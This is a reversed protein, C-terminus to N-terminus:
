ATLVTNGADHVVAVRCATINNWAIFLFKYINDLPEYFVQRVDAEPVESVVRVNIRKGVNIVRSLKHSGFKLPGSCPRNNVRDWTKSLDYFARSGIGEGCHSVLVLSGGDKVGRQCNEMGKQIQYLNKDLPPLLECLVIDYPEDVVNSFLQRAVATCEIFADHLSGCSIHAIAGTADLVTQLGIMANMDLLGSLNMLHEAVPNGELRLPQAELSNALNHNREVTALDTLGPFVSKRGGTFGAFYHPEVSGILLPKEAELFKRNVLVQEGFNDKGVSAMSDTKRSDHIWLRNHLRPLFSGFIKRLQDDTPAAHTGTAILFDARDILGGDTKDIWELLTSTPTNRYADNVVILPREPILDFVGEWVTAFDDITIPRSAKGPAFCDVTVAEPFDLEIYSDGYVLRTKM